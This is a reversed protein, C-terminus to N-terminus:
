QSSGGAKGADGADFPSGGREEARSLWANCFRKIGRATKRKQPNAELWAEMKRLESEVDISPYARQWSISDEPEPQWDDGNKLIM